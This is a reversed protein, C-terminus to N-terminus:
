VQGELKKQADAIRKDWDGAWGQEKAQQCLEIVEQHKEQKKLIIALQTYGAHGPLQQDPYEKLFQKAAQPAIAIQDECAKIAENLANSDTERERYYIEMKQQLSFHLDLVDTGVQALETAKAIIKKAIERDGPKNFWGALAHLLGAANQSSYSLEGETLSKSGPESGMPQFVEEIHDREEENFESLWWDELGYYGIQGKVKGEIQRPEAATIKPVDGDVKSLVDKYNMDYAYVKKFHKQANAKQGAADYVLGLNYHLELLGDDLNRKTLSAKKFVEIALDHQEKNSFCLGFLQLAKLNNEWGGPFNQMLPIVKDFEGLSFYCNALSVLTGEHTLDQQHARELYPAAEKYKGQNHYVGGLLFDTETNEPYINAVELLLPEAEAYKQEQFLATAKKIRQKAQYKPSKNRRYYYIVAGIVMVVGLPPLAIGLVIAVLWLLLKGGGSSQSPNASKVGSSQVKRGTKSYSTSYIGTGPIGVSTYSGRSNFGVRAGRVGASMGLGSKSMNLRVGPAIKFSKRFTFGM